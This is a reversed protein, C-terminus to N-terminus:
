GVRGIVDPGSNPEMADGPTADPKEGRTKTDPCPKRSRHTKREPLSIKMGDMLSGAQDNFLRRIASVIDEPHVSVGTEKRIANRYRRISDESLMQNLLCAPTLASQTEWLSDLTGKKVSHFSILEFADLLETLDDQLLNWASIQRIDPPQGFELHYLEWERGNTLLVWECGMDIAYRSAQKLHKKSLDINVRKLEVVMAVKGDNITIAFDMHETDGVGHVAYERSLHKFVDYGLVSEFIREVRRRTEAENGDIKQVEEILKKAERLVPKKNDGKAM